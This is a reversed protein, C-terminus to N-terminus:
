DLSAEDSPLLRARQPRQGSTPGGSRLSQPTRWGRGRWTSHSTRNEGEAAEKEKNTHTPHLTKCGGRRRMKMWACWERNTVTV